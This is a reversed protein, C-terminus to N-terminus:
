EARLAPLLPSRLAAWTAILSAALGSLLVAILLLGLSINPLRGGRDFFVPAIALLACLTGTVLGLFLLLANEAFVMTTFHSSNYGVARLLALEKRREFVNRLLVAGMGLTGLILGLGGLMQFTSLYTNEVRHFNALRDRTSVADFGYDALRDELTATVNLVDQEPADILFFRYGPQDPFLRLFNKESMVLESQFVSDALAGVFRVRVPGENRSLVLEDGLKKHLVYTMSNGDAIVPVVGQDLERNLLLWPNAKEESSNALSNQFTFRDSTIFQETAGLVRPNGPAYLNLCSADDGPRLRFRTLTTNALSASGGIGLSLAARGDESNPDHVIPLLSEAMLPFGGSGSKKDQSAGSDPRRFADVAVIIFTSFAILTICLVSRSPRYTTNRFGMRSVAPWGVGQITRRDSKRLWASQYFLL